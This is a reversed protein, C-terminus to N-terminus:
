AVNHPTAKCYQREFAHWALAGFLAGGAGWYVALELLVPETRSSRKANHASWVCFLAICWWVAKFGMGIFDEM